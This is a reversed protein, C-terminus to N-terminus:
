KKSLEDVLDERGMRKIAQVVTDWTRPQSGTDREKTMWNRVMERCAAVANQANNRRIIDICTPEVGLYIAFQEWDSAIKPVVNEEIDQLLAQERDSWLSQAADHM